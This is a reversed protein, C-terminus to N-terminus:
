PMPRASKRFSGPSLGLVRKFARSFAAESRYGLRDALVALPAGSEKLQACALQMRWHTLYHMVPEGVIQTFRASFGSRSMGVERALSAVSWNRGPERHIAALAGGVQRDRMAALWGRDGGHGSEIWSRIAQIVVVDALRTIVTEGGPRMAEAERSIFRVTDHLWDQGNERGDVHLVIPLLELLRRAAAHDFRVGCYTIRTPDGGGGHRMIEYRDSILQIPIDRLPRAGADLSSRIRHATGHPMLAVSGPVLQVPDRGASELWCRGANVIHIMMCGKLTPLDIGWPATLEARCYLVGSLKLLLLAECLPDPSPPLGPDIRPRTPARDSSILSRLALISSQDYIKSINHNNTWINGPM